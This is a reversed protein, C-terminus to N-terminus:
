FTYGFLDIDSKYHKYVINKSEEDYYTRYDCSISKNLTILKSLQIGLVDHIQQRIDKEFFLIHDIDKMPLWHTQPLFHPGTFKRQDFM